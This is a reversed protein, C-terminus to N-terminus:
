QLSRLRDAFHEVVLKAGFKSLHNGDSYILNGGKLTICRGQDCLADYPNLFVLDDRKAAFQAIAANVDYGNGQEAEIELRKLCIMPLYDPRQLCAATGQSSGAGPATGILFLTRGEAKNLLDRLTDLVFAMYEEDNFQLSTGDEKAVIKRYGPWNLSMVLPARGPQAVFDLVDGMREVCVERPKGALLATYGPRFYCADRLSTQWKQGETNLFHDLAGAYQRALSDGLILASPQAAAHDGIEYHGFEYGEGGYEREHFDKAHALRQRYADNERFPLGNGKVVVLAPVVCLLGWAACKAANRMPNAGLRGRRFRNEVYSYLPAALLFSLSLLVLRDGIELPRYIYYKYFVILPWHVLYLSYSILGTAVVLRNRLLAGLYKARGGAICLMAGVAPFLANVGPFVTSADFRLAGYLILALGIAMMGELGANAHPRYRELWPILGGAAFEFVRFPMLYYNATPDVGAMWQSAVLSVLGVAGLVYPVAAPRARYALWIILPWILYFQQEVGLSWTHLLPNLESSQDFYGASQWFLFNSVSFFSAVTSEALARYHVAAFVLFGLALVGLLTVVLAPYLRAIRREMFSLFAFRGANCDRLLIGTILYGSIVFFIDVGVFGGSIWAFGVHFLLVCVVAIARLGDVEAQYNAPQQTM